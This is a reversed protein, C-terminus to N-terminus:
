RQGGKPVMAVEVGIWIRKGVIIIDQQGYSAISVSPGVHQPPPASNTPNLVLDRRSRGKQGSPNGRAKIKQAIESYAKWPDSIGDAVKYWGNRVKTVIGYDLGRRVMGSNAHDGLDKIQFEKPMLTRMALYARKTYGKDIM